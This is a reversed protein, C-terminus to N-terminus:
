AGALEHSVAAALDSMFPYTEERLFDPSRETSPPEAAARCADAIGSALADAAISRLSILNPNYGVLDKGTYTNTVTRLGFHAMELPPYSPHPSAMLSVGVSSELLLGAYDELSLKGLSRVQRGAGIDVPAHPTGASVVDWDAFEPYAATWRKLGRVLAPFCNRNVTPRGYILIQKKRPAGAVQDLFPRLKENIVPEFVWGREVSHDQREFYGKLSSSNFVGWLREPTDYAERALMHGSSFPFIVPEYEQILYLLPKREAKFHDAQADLLREINLTTWWNYTVFLEDKRVAISQSPTAVREVSVKDKAFGARGARSTFIDSSTSQDHDTLILRLDLESTGQVTKALNLFIDIGTTVGGFAERNSLNPIVFSLRANSGFDAAFEYEALVANDIPLPAVSSRVSQVLDKAWVPAIQRM